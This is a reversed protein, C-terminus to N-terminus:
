FYLVQLVSISGSFGLERSFYTPCLGKYRFLMCWWLCNTTPSLVKNLPRLYVGMVRSGYHGWM